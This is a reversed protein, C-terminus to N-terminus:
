DTVTIISGAVTLTYKRLASTAPGNIVAGTNANFEAGHNPCNFKAGSPVYNVSTGQHTCAQSFANFANNGLAIIIIGNKRITGGTTKLAANTPDNLDVTFNVGVPAATSGTDEDEKKCASICVAAYLGFTGAIFQKRDM